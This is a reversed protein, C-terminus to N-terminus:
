SKTFINNEVIFLDLEHLYINYLTFGIALSKQLYIIKHSIFLNNTFVGKTYLMKHILDIFVQQSVYKKTILNVLRKYNLRYFRKSISGEIAWLSRPAKQSIYNLADHYFRERRFGFSCNLFKHESLQELIISMVKQVIKNRLGCIRLFKINKQQNFVNCTFDFSFNGELIIISLNQFYELHM